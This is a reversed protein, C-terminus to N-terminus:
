KKPKGPPSYNVRTPGGTYTVAPKKPKSYVTGGDKLKPKTVQVVTKSKPKVNVVPKPKPTVNVVKNPNRVTVGPKPGQSGTNLTKPTKGSSGGAGRYGGGASGGASNGGYFEGFKQTAKAM